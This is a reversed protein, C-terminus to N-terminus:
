KTNIFYEVPIVDEGLLKFDPINMPELIISEKDKNERYFKRVNELIQGFINSGELIDPNDKTRRAAWFRDYKSTEEVIDKDGTQDLLPGFTNWHQLLKTTTCWELVQINVDMWDPREDKAYKRCVCKAGMPSPNSLIELQHSPYYSYRFSQYMAENTRALFLLIKDYPNLTEGYFVTKCINRNKSIESEIPLVLPSHSMNSFEGNTDRVKLFVACDERKYFKITRDIEAFKLKM